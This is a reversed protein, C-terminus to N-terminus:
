LWPVINLYGAVILIYNIVTKMLVRGIGGCKFFVQIRRGDTPNPAYSNGIACQGAGFSYSNRNAFIQDLGYGSTDMRTGSGDNITVTFVGSTQSLDKNQIEEYLLCNENGPTRLQVRFQVNSSTVYQGDPRILRGHYTIGSNNSGFALAPLLALRAFVSLFVINLSKRIM